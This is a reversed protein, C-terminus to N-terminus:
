SACGLSSLWCPVNMADTIPARPPMEPTAGPTRGIRVLEERMPKLEEPDVVTRMADVDTIEEMTKPRTRAIDEIIAQIGEKGEFSKVVPRAGGIRLALEPLARSLDEVQGHLEAERTRAYHLLRDPHEAAFLRRKGATVTSMIGREGLAAIAAYTAPRSLRTAKALDIVTSPGCELAALYVKVESELLGLSRLIPAVDRM